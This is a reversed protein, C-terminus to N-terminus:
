VFKEECCFEWVHLMVSKEVLPKCLAGTIIHNSSIERCAIGTLFKEHLGETLIPYLVSLSPFAKFLYHKIRYKERASYPHM